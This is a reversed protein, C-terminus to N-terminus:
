IALLNPSFYSLNILDAPSNTYNILYFYDYIIYKNEQM